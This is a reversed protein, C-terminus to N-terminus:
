RARRRLAVDILAVATVVLTQLTYTVVSVLSHMSRGHTRREMTISEETIRYGSLSLAVITEM